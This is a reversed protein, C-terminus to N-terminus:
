QVLIEYDKFSLEKGGYPIYLCGHSPQVKGVTLAGDHVVRGVYLPEGDESQGAALAGSPINGGSTAVWTGAFDCLVEYEYIPHEKGGWSVYGNGHSPVLKGPLLGGNFNSRCVYVTEGSDEGGVFPRPPVQGNGSAVWCANAAYPAGQTYAAPAIPGGGERQEIVWSGRAGWGTCFGVYEIPVREYDTFSIFPSGEGENGASITGNEWRVWFGRFDQDTLIGPTPVEAVEPKTRNKRIVSKSNGWGGIFIEYMPTTEAASPSLAIHADNSARVRFQCIGSRNPFFTYQLRDETELDVCSM